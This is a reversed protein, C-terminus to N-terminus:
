GSGEMILSCFTALGVEDIKLKKNSQCILERLETLNTIERSLAIDERIMSEKLVDQHWSGCCHNMLRACVM